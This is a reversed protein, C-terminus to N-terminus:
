SLLFVGEPRQRLSCLYTTYRQGFLIQALVNQYNDLETSKYVSCPTITLTKM